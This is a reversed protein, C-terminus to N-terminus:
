SGKQTDPFRWQWVAEHAEATQIHGLTKAATEQVSRTEDNLLSILAPVAVEATGPHAKEIKGLAEAAARRVEKRGDSLVGILPQIAQPSRLMGLAKAAERRTTFDSSALVGILPEIARLDGSTGLGVVAAMHLPASTLMEILPEITGKKALAIAIDARQSHKGTRFAQRLAETAREDDIEALALAAYQMDPRELASSLVDIVSKTTGPHRSGIEGLARVATRRGDYNGSSQIPGTLGETLADVVKGALDEHQLGIMCMADSLCQVAIEGRRPDLKHKLLTDLIYPAVDAHKKGIMGLAFVGYRWVYYHQSVLTAVLPEVTRTDGLEGLMLAVGGVGSDYPMSAILDLVVDDLIEPRADCIRRLAIAAAQESAKIYTSSLVFEMLPRSARPDGLLGLARIARDRSRIDRESQMMELLGDLARDDGLRALGFLAQERVQRNSDDLHEALHMIGVNGGLGPLNMSRSSPTAEARGLGPEQGTIEQEKSSM